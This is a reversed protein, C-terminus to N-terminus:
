RLLTFNGKKIYKSEDWGTYEVIYFYVDGQTSEEKYTGNFGDKKNYTEFIREGWRNYIQLHYDKVFVPVMRYIDNIGDGNETYANPAYLLPLQILDITNSRSTQNNGFINEYALISYEYLGNDYNLQKDIAMLPKDFKAVFLNDTYIGPETKLVEYKNIGQAWYEYPQWSMNNEFPIADGQLLITCAIKNQVSVNGCLDVNVLQYCYSHKDVDVDKDTFVTDTLNRIETQLEFNGSRGTRKLVRYRWFSDAEAQEFILNVEADNVVTATYIELTPSPSSESQVCSVL